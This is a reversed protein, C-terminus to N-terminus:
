ARIDLLRGKPEAARQLQDAQQRQAELVKKLLLVRADERVAPANPEAPVTAV